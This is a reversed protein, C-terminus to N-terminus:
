AGAFDHCRPPLVSYTTYPPEPTACNTEIFFSFLKLRTGSGKSCLGSSNQGYTCHFGAPKHHFTALIALVGAGNGGRCPIGVAAVQYFTGTAQYEGPQAEADKWRKGSVMGCHHLGAPTPAAAAVPVGMDLMVVAVLTCIALAIPGTLQHTDPV